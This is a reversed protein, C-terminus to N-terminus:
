PIVDILDAPQTFPARKNELSLFAPVNLPKVKDGNLARPLPGESHNACMNKLALLALEFRDSVGVKDFLKSLYVKVTGETIGLSWAIEKNSLGQALLGTVHRERPALPVRSTSILKGRADADIWLHGEAVTKLCELHVEISSTRSLVGRAGAAMAQSLYEGSIGDFWLVPSTRSDIGAIRRLQNLNLAASVELLLLSPPSERRKADLLHAELEDLSTFAGTVQFSRDNELIACLGAGTVPAVAYASLSIM